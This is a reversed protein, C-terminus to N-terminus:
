WRKSFGITDEEEEEEEETDPLEVSTRPIRSQWLVQIM